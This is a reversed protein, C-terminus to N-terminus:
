EDKVCRIPALFSEKDLSFYSMDTKDEYLAVVIGEDDSNSTATWWLSYEMDGDFVFDEDSGCVGYGTPIASFGTSNNVNVKPWYEWMRDGNFYADVMLSGAVGSFSGGCLTKWEELEPLHWGDPCAENAEEWNYYRGFLDNMPSCLWYAYGADAWSLNQAMWTVGDKEITVYEKNDREDVFTSSTVGEPIVVETLSKESVIACTSSSSIPYYDASYAYCSITLTCLTDPITYTFTGKVSSDDGQYRTTDRATQTPSVIWYYGVDTGYENTYGGSPTSTIVDGAIAYKPVSFSVTGSVYSTDEDDDDSKCSFLSLSAIATVGLLLFLKNLKM